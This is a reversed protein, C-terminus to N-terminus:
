APLGNAEIEAIIRSAAAGPDPDATIPRGIVLYDAGAALAEAPSMVRRQDDSGHLAGGPRVGPTVIMLPASVEERLARIERPSAVIGRVGASVGLTALRVVQESVTGRVGTEALTAADSSTLVSVGLLLLRRDAEAAAARLMACGGSLHVTLLDVELAAAARVARAVTNPIDHLKLDLFIRCQADPAATAAAEKVRGVIDPGCSTFLELGIKFFGIRGAVQGVLRLAAAQDAVDLALIIKDKAPPPNFM